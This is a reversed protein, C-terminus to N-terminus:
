EVGHRHQHAWEELATMNGPWRQRLEAGCADCRISTQGNAAATSVSVHPLRSAVGSAVVKLLRTRKSSM